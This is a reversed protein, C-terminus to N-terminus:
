GKPRNGAGAADGKRRLWERVHTIATPFQRYQVWDLLFIPVAPFDPDIRAAFRVRTRRPGLETLQLEGEYKRFTGQVRNYTFRWVDQELRTENIVWRPGIPWVLALYSYVQLTPGDRREVRCKTIDFIQEYHDFDTYAAWVEAVPSEIDGVVQFRKVPADAREVQVLVEGAELRAKEGASLAAVVGDGVWPVLSAALVPIWAM